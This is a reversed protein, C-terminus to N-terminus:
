PQIILVVIQQTQQIVKFRDDIRYGMIWAIQNQSEMIWIKDKTLRDIKADTFFDSLKKQQKMGLPYFRDGTKWHRITLPFILKSADFSGVSAEKIWEYHNAEMEDVEITFPLKSFDSFQNIVYTQNENSLPEIIVHQRDVLLQHSESYFFRGPEANISDLIKLVSDYRFGMPSILEFLITEKGPLHQIKEIAILYRNPKVTVLQNKHREISEQFLLATQKFNNLNQEMVQDFAPNIKKFAPIVQHRIINRMYDFSDNSSDNRFLLNEQALYADIAARTVCLLPRVVLKNKPLIGSIGQIGTGRALNLFVTEISDNLHHGTAIKTYKHNQSLEDFWQYRLNRAAMETSVHHTEAYKNTDFSIVHLPIQLKEVWDRVFAEDDDSETGRLNFNCHAAAVSYGLQILVHVLTVSDAGGSLAVLITDSKDLLRNKAIYKQVQKLM